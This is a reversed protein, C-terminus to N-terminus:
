ARRFAHRQDPQRAFPAHRSAVPDKPKKTRGHRSDGTHKKAGGPPGPPLDNEINDATAGPGERGAKKWRDTKAVRPRTKHDRETKQRACGPLNPSRAKAKTRSSRTSATGSM